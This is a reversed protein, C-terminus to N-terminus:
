VREFGLCEGGLALVEGQLFEVRRAQIQNLEYLAAYQGKLEELEAALVQERSPNILIKTGIVVKSQLKKRKFLRM